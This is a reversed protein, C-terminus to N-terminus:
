CRLSHELALETLRPQIAMLERRSCVLTAYVASLMGGMPAGLGRKYYQHRVNVYSHMVGFRCIDCLQSTSIMVMEGDTYDVGIRAGKGFRAVSFRDVIRKGSWGGVSNIAWTVATLIEAHNIEDFMNSIDGTWMAWRYTSGSPFHSQADDMGTNVLRRFAATNAIHFQGPPLLRCLLSLIQGIRKLLRRAPHGTTPVVPRNRCCKGKKEYVDACTALIDKLKFLPYPVSASCNPNWAAISSWKQKDYEQKMIRAIATFSTPMPTFHRADTTVPFTEDFYREFLHPCLILCRSTCKDIGMVALDKLFTALRQVIHYDFSSHLGKSQSPSSSTSTADGTAQITEDDQMPPIYFDPLYQRWAATIATAIVKTGSSTSFITSQMTSHMTSKGPGEYMWSPVFIHGHRRPWEPPYLHCNCPLPGTYMKTIWRKTTILVSGITRAALRVVRTSRLVHDCIMQPIFSVLLAKRLTSIVQMRTALVESPIRIVLDRDPTLTFGRCRLVASLQTTNMKHIPAPLERRSIAWMVWLHEVSLNAKMFNNSVKHRALHLLEAYELSRQLTKHIRTIFTLLVWGPPQKIAWRLSTALTYQNTDEGRQVMYCHVMSQGLTRQLHTLPSLALLSNHILINAYKEIALTPDVGRSLATGNGYYLILRATHAPRSNWAGSQPLTAGRASHLSSYQARKVMRKRRHRQEKNLHMPYLRIEQKELRNLIQRPIEIMCFIYPVFFWSGPGGHRHMYAYKAEGNFDYDRIGRWHEVMREYTIDRYAVQGVYGTATDFSVLQYILSAKSTMM